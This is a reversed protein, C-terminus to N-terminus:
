TAIKYSYRPNEHPPRSTAGKTAIKKFINKQLNKRKPPVLASM